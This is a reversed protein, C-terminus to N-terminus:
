SGHRARNQRKPAVAQNASVPIQVQVQTGGRGSLFTAAGGLLVARERISQLGLHSSSGRVVAATNFGRGDDAVTLTLRDASLRLRIRVNKARAHRAVNTLSEQLIRYLAIQVPGPLPPGHLGQVELQIATDHTQSYDSALRRLAAD